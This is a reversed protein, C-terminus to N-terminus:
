PDGPEKSHGSLMAELAGEAARVGDGSEASFVQVGMGQTEVSVYVEGARSVAIDGHMPGITDRGAPLKLWDAVAEYTQTHAAGCFFVGALAAVQNLTPARSRM